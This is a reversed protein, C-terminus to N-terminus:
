GHIAALIDAAGRAMLDEAVRTGLTEPDADPARGEARLIESGDSRGVLGRLWLEGAGRYRAYCAVPARCGGNLRANMAREARVCRATAEDQLPALLAAIEADGARLEIGVAGQGGAPLSHELPIRQRIRRELGLRILGASALVIAGYDGEDLKRLRTDVNGRLCEIELDPRHARLQCQRRLSATGVVCGRPLEDVGGYLNSVLADGPDERPCVVGLALGEPFKMPVDKMSHVAIDAEGGLLATELEKVFLGKGGAQALPIDPLRDGGSTMGILVAELGPHHRELETKVHNAQWLALRSERTAIRIRGIMTDASPFPADM